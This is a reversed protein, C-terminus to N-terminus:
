IFDSKIDTRDGYILHASFSKKLAIFFFMKSGAIAGCGM